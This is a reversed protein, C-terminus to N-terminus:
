FRMAVPLGVKVAGASVSMATIAAESTATLKGFVTLALLLSGKGLGQRSLQKALSKRARYFLMRAAFESCSMLKAIESYDLEEYCRMALIARHRPKLKSMSSIVIQKLEQSIVKALGDQSEGAPGEYDLSSMPVTKKRGQSRNHHRIKNFAIGYLWPWFKDAHKLKGLVKFMELMSEQVIDQTLNAQLTIRYVHEGLRRRAM